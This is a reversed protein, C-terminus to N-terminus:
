KCANRCRKREGNFYFNPDVGPMFLVPELGHAGHSRVPFRLAAEVQEHLSPQQHGVVVPMLGDGM